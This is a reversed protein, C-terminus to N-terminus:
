NCLNQRLRIISARFSRSNYPNYYYQIHELSHKLFREKELSGHLADLLVGIEDVDSDCLVSEADVCEVFTM